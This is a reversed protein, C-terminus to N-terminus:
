LFHVLVCKINDSYGYFPNKITVSKYYYDRAKLSLTLHNPCKPESIPVVKEDKGVASLEMGQTCSDVLRTVEGLVSLTNYVIDFTCGM